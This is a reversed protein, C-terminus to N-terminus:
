KCIPDSRYLITQKTELSIIMLIAATLRRAVALNSQLLLSRTLCEVDVGNDNKRIQPERSLKELGFILFMKIVSHTLKNEIASFRMPGFEKSLTM